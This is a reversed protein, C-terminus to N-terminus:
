AVGSSQTSGAKDRVGQKKQENRLEQWTLTEIGVNRCEEVLGDILKSMEETTMEHVGKLVFWWRWAKGGRDETKGTDRLHNVEDRDVAERVSDTDRLCVSVKMGDITAFTGYDRMMQNHLQAKTKVIGIKALEGQLQDLLTWYYGNQSITKPARYVKVDWQTDDNESMKANFFAHAQITSYIM